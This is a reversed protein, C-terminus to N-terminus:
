FEWALSLRFNRGPLPVNEKLFSTHQRADQDGLNHASLRVTIDDSLEYTGFLNLLLYTESSFEGLARRNQAATYELEARVGWREVDANVGLTAGLPPIRPLAEHGVSSLSARVYELSADMEIEFGQWAGLDKAMDIEFGKFVADSPTFRSVTLADGEDTIVVDGTVVEYIYNAYETYFANITLHDKGKKYRLSMEAGTAIEKDLDPRGIEFQNTALHPGNSFLEESTPARETRYLTGGLKTTETLHTDLGLSGSIGDYNIAIGTDNEHKVYEYRAAAEIHFTDFDWEHFSFIGYLNTTTPPVFAEEGIASFDRTKYQIGHAAQWIGQPNQLIEARGEFGSNSFITGVEGSPEIEVHQYDATGGSINLSDFVGETFDFKSSMDYRTQDLRIHAGEGGPVGYESNLDKIAVGIFAGEGIYSIGAALSTAETASNPLNGRVEDAIPLPEARRLRSSRAFDPIDYDETMRHSVGVHAVIDADGLQGLSIHSGLATEYGNDVSTLGIRASGSILNTPVHEPIRGDIVNVVGGSASSGYRLLGSGRIVEIRSAMAPEVAAAHDPSASSADISGIGNDLLLVRSGGQGRIIPRSAGAGFFSSSIGPEFKLTEGLSGSMRRKLEENTLVSVGILNESTTASLLSGTVIIEDDDSNQALASNGCLSTSILLGGLVGHTRLIKIFM